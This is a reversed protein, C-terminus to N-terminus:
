EECINTYYAAPQQNTSVDFWDFDKKLAVETQIVISTFSLIFDQFHNKEESLNIKKELFIQDVFVVFM